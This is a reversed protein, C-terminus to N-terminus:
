KSESFAILEAHKKKIEKILSKKASVLGNIKRYLSKRMDDYDIVKQYDYYEFISVQSAAEMLRKFKLHDAFYGSFVYCEKLSAIDKATVDVLDAHVIKGIEKHGGHWWQGDCEIIEGTQLTITFKRGAFAMFRGQPYELYYCQYFIDDTGWVFNGHRYYKLKPKESLVAALSGNLRVKAIIQYPLSEM